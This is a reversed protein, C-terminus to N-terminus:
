FLRASLKNRRLFVLFSVVAFRGVFTFLTAFTEVVFLSQCYVLHGMGALIFRELALYPSKVKLGFKHKKDNEKRLNRLIM